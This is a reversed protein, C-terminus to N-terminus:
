RRISRKPLGSCDTLWTAHRELGRPMTGIHGAQKRFNQINEYDLPLSPLPYETWFTTPSFLHRLMQLHEQEAIKAWFAYFGTVSKVRAHKYHIPRVDYFFTDQPDWMVSIIQTRTQEAMRAYRNEAIADDMLRALSAAAWFNKFAYTSQDVTALWHDLTGYYLRYLEDVTEPWRFCPCGSM